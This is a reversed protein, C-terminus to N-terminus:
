GEKKEVLRISAKGVGFDVYGWDRVARQVNEVESCMWEYRKKYFDLEVRLKAEYLEREVDRDFVDPFNVNTHSTAM